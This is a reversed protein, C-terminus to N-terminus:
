RLWILVAILLDLGCDVLELGFGLLDLESDIVDLGCGVLDLGLGHFDSECDVFDLGCGVMDLVFGLFDLECDVFDLENRTQVSFIEFLNNFKNNITIFLGHGFRCSANLSNDKIILFFIVCPCAYIKTSYTITYTNKSYTIGM